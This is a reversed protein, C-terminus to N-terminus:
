VTVEFIKRDGVDIWNNEYEKGKNFNFTLLYGKKVGQEKMYNCLQDIGKKGYVEGNWIKLEVIRKESGYTIVVDMQIGTENLIEGLELM